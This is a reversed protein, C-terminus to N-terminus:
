IIQLMHQRFNIGNFRLIIPLLLFIKSVQHSTSTCLYLDLITIIMRISTMTYMSYVVISSVSIIPKSYISYQVTFYMAHSVSLFIFLLFVVNQIGFYNDVMRGAKCLKMHSSRVVKLKEMLSETVCYMPLETLEHGMKRLVNNLQVFKERLIFVYTTFHALRIFMYLVAINQDTALYSKSGYFIYAQSCRLFINVFVTILQTKWVIRVNRYSVTEGISAMSADVEAIINLCHALENRQMIGAIIGHIEGFWLVCYGTVLSMSGINLIRWRGCRFYMCAFFAATITLSIFISRLIYVKRMKCCFLQKNLDVKLPTLCFIRMFSLFWKLSSFINDDSAMNVTLNGAFNM